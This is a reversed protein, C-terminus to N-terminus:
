SADRVHASCRRCQDDTPVDAERDAGGRAHLVRARRHRLLHRTVDPRRRHQLFERDLAPEVPRGARHVRAREPRQRHQPQLLRAARAARSPEADGGRQRGRQGALSLFRQVYTGRPQHRGASRHPRARSRFSRPAITSVRPAPRNTPTTSRAMRRRRRARRQRGASRAAPSGVPRLAGPRLTSSLRSPVPRHISFSSCTAPALTSAGYARHQDAGGRVRRAASVPAARWQASSRVHLHDSRRHRLDPQRQQQRRAPEAGPAIVPTDAPGLGTVEYIQWYYTNWQYRTPHSGVVMSFVAKTGDWHVSPERVAIANPVRSAPPRRLRSGRDPEEANRGSVSDVPRRRAPGLRRCWSSQRLDIRDDHLRCSEAGADRVPDPVAADGRRQEADRSTRRSRLAGCWDVARSAVHDQSPSIGTRVAGHRTRRYTLSLRFVLRRDGPSWGMSLGTGTPEYNAKVVSQWPLAAAPPGPRRVYHEASSQARRQVHTASAPGAPRSM